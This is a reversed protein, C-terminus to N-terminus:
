DTNLAMLAVLFIFEHFLLGPENEVPNISSNEPNTDDNYIKVLMKNDDFFVHESETMPCIIQRMLQELSEINNRHPLIRKIKCLKVFASVKM